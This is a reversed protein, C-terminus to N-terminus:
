GHVSAQWVRCLCLRFNMCFNQSCAVRGNSADLLPISISYVIVVEIGSFKYQYEILFDLGVNAALALWTIETGHGNDLPRSASCINEGLDVTNNRAEFESGETKNGVM